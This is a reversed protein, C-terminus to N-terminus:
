FKQRRNLTRFHASIHDNIGKMYIDGVEGISKESVNSMYRGLCAFAVISILLLLSFSGILFHTTMGQFINTKTIHNQSKQGQAKKTSM